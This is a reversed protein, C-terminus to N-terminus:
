MCLNLGHGFGHVLSSFPIKSLNYPEMVIIVSNVAIIHPKPHLRVKARTITKQKGSFSSKTEEQHNLCTVKIFISEMVNLSRSM